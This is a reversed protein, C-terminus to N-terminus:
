RRLGRRRAAAARVRPPRRRAPLHLRRLRADRKDVYYATDSAFYTLEGDAKVLVRDKDDGFDTTRLWVAGDQEFVHGQERLKALGREVAGPTTCPGSPPGCTSTRASPTSCPGSSPWRCSTAPRASRRRGSTTPCPRSSRTSPRRDARAIEVIYDGHYGDSPVPRGAAAAALSAGFRDMQVGRDNIYFERTVTAGAASLVRAMADGVAAWRTHGLHLPGTPNASIFELNVTTGRLPDSRGYAAGARLVAAAVAGASAADLTINLFGPGAVDVSAVGPTKALYAAVAAAVDRPPRGAKKALQLAVNTAYDGHERVKPREVTTSTPVDAADLVLDGAAVAARVAALVSDALEEPTVRM